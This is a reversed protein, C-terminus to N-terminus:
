CDEQELAPKLTLTSSSSSRASGPERVALGTNQQLVRQLLMAPTPHQSSSPQQTTDHQQAVLAAYYSGSQGVTYWSCV